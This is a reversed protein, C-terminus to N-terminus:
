ENNIEEEEFDENEKIGMGEIIQQIYEIESSDLGLCFKQFVSPPLIDMSGPGSTYSKLAEARIKGVEAKEKDSMSWLDAWQVSYDDSYKPEPLIGYLICRDIFPRVIRPEAYDLRRDDILEYWTQRDQTSALEGRETGTIMKKPIGTVASIMQLQVDVHDSPDAIQQQLSELSVGANMFFRRLNHEYEDLQTLIADIDGSGINFEPDVKGQYGPRAGRWYMEGSGGVIKDLDHLRNFVAELRPLGEIESELLDGTIHIVRSHHVLTNEYSGTTGGSFVVDYYLPLGHRDSAKDSELEKITASRMSLPKLYLLRRESSVDVPNKFDRDEQVDDLGLLLVGYTGLSALKDVRSFKSKVGLDNLLNTWEIELSTKEEDGIIGEQRKEMIEITGRWTASIPKDIIGKAIDQRRYRAYYDDFNLETPYGLAKYLDRDGGYTKGMISALKARGTLTGQLAVQSLTHLATARKSLETIKENNDTM